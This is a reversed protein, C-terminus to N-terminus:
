AHMNASLKVMFLHVGHHDSATDLVDWLGVGGWKAGVALLIKSETPHVAMSFIRDPVVKAM